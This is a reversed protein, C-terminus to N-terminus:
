EVPVGAPGTSAKNMETPITVDPGEKTATASWSNKTGLFLEKSLFEFWLHKM